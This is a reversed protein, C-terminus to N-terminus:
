RNLSKLKNGDRDRMRGAFGFDPKRWNMMTARKSQARTSRAIPGLEGGSRQNRGKTRSWLRARSRDPATDARELNIPRSPAVKDRARRESALLFRNLPSRSSQRGM